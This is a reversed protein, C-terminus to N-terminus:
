SKKNKPRDTGEKKSDDCDEDVAKGEEVEPSLKIPNQADFKVNM